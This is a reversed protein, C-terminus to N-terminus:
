HTEAASRWREAYDAFGNVSLAQVPTLDLRVPRTRSEWEWLLAAGQAAGDLRGAAWVRRGPHLAALLGCFLANAAFPGDIIIDNETGIHDLASSAMLATYLAALAVREVANAPAPGVIRGRGGTNPFPGGSDSFSPLAMSGVAVLHAVVSPKARLAIDQAVIAYERGGMFRSCAVPRGFADVNVTTDFAAQLNNIPYAHNFNIIWTGTSMLSFDRWGGALYRLYNANSDHIGCLVQTDAALGARTGLDPVVPGLSEWARRLPPFLPRWGQMDVFSSFDGRQPAWLHTQAGLSTVESAVVGSFRWAWYQPYSLIRRARDFNDPFATQQWLLQRALTLGGPNIPAFTEDFPPAMAAYDAIVSEPPQAEYHMVPLVLSDEDVLATASGHTCPVIARINLVGAMERLGQLLWEWARKVDFHRYFPADRVPTPIKRAALVKGARNIALLKIHTIGFDLAAVAETKTM